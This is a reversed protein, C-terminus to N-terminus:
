NVQNNVVKIIDETVIPRKSIKSVLLKIFEYDEKTDLAYRLDLPFKNYEVSFIRFEKPNNYIYPTVHERDENTIAERWAKELASFTMAEVETGSPVNKTM